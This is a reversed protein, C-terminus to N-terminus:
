SFSCGTITLFSVTRPLRTAHLGRDESTPPPIESAKFLAKWADKHTMSYLERLTQHEALVSEWLNFARRQCLLIRCVLMVQVVNVLKIKKDKMNKISNQLGTLKAPEGWALGKKEWSTLRM